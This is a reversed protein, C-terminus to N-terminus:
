ILRLSASAGRWGTPILMSAKWSCRGMDVQGDLVGDHSALETKGGVGDVNVHSQITDENVSRRRLRPEQRGLCDQLVVSCERHYSRRCRYQSLHFSLHRRSTSKRYAQGFATTCICDTCRSALEHLKSPISLKGSCCPRRVLTTGGLFNEGYQLADSDIAGIAGLHDFYLASSSGYVGYVTTTFAHIVHFV